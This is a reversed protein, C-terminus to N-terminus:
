LAAIQCFINAAARVQGKKGLKGTYATNCDEGENPMLIEGLDVGHRKPPRRGGRGRQRQFGRGLGRGPLGCYEKGTLGGRGQPGGGKGSPGAWGYGRGYGPHPFGTNKMPAFPNGLPNGVYDSGMGPFPAVVPTPDKEGGWGIRVTSGGGYLGDYDKEPAPPPAFATTKPPPPLVSYVALLYSVSDRPVEVGESEDKVPHRPGEGGLNSIIHGKTLRTRGHAECCARCDCNTSLKVLSLLGNHTCCFLSRCM